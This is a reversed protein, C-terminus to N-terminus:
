GRTIGVAGAVVGGIVGCLMTTGGQTTSTEGNTRVTAQQKLVIGGGALIEAVNLGLKQDLKDIEALM